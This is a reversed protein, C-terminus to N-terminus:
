FIIKQDWISQFAKGDGGQYAPKFSNGDNVRQILGTIEEYDGDDFCTLLPHLKYTLKLSDSNREPMVLILHTGNLKKKLIMLHEIEKPHSVYFLAIKLTDLNKTVMEDMHFFSDSTSIVEGSFHSDLLNKLRKVTENEKHYHFLMHM